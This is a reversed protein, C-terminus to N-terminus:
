GGFLGSAVTLVAGLPGPAYPAVARLAAKYDGNLVAQAGDAVQRAPSGPPMLATAIAVAGPGGAVTGAGLASAAQPATVGAKAYSEKVQRDIAAVEAAVDADSTDDKVPLVAALAGIAKDAVEPHDGSAAAQYAAFIGTAAAELATGRHVCRLDKALLSEGRHVLDDPMGENKMSWVLGAVTQVGVQSSKANWHAGMFARAFGSIQLRLEDVVWGVRENKAQFAKFAARETASQPPVRWQERWKSIADEVTPAGGNALEISFDVHEARLKAFLV